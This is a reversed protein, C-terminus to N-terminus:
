GASTLSLKVSLHFQVREIGRDPQRPGDIFNEREKGVREIELGQRRGEQIEM